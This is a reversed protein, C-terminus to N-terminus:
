FNGKTYFVGGDRHRIWELLFNEVGVDTPFFNLNSVVDFWKIENYWLHFKIDM